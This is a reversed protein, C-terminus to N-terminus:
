DRVCRVSFARSKYQAGHYLTDSNFIMIRIYADEESGDDDDDNATWWYGISDDGGDFKGNSYRTGGPLASFGFDDTGNDKYIWGSKSKLRAGKGGVAQGLDDWEADSPLHWGASCAKMATNWDYLRGYKNCNAEKNEYCWSKGTQPQYNLNQAM